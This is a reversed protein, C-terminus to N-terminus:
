QCLHSKLCIGVLKQKLENMEYFEIQKDYQLRGVVIGPSINLRLAFARISTDDLSSTKVFNRYESKPILLESAFSDAEDEETSSYGNNEIFIARKPHNIIHGAEHFFSFWFHDDTRYKLSLQILAKDSNMWRTAGSATKPLQPVFVVAVGCSACLDVMKKCFVDPSEVTLTRIKQLTAIFKARNFPLCEIKLAIRAGMRLWAALAYPNSEAKNSKRYYVRITKWHDEWAEPTAVGFFALINNLREVPNRTQPIWKLRVMATFPFNKTWDVQKGLSKQEAKRALFEDHRRQRNNWFSAPIGFVKELQIATEPIIKAKGKIIENITKSPRGTREALETQSMGLSNITELLTKGPHSVYDPHYENKASKGM